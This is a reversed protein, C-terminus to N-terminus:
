KSIKSELVKRLVRALKVKNIQKNMEIDISYDNFEDIICTEMNPKEKNEIYSLLCESIYRNSQFGSNMLIKLLEEECFEYKEQNEYYENKRVNYLAKLFTKCDINKNFLNYYNRVKEIAEKQTIQGFALELIVGKEKLIESIRFLTLKLDEPIYFIKDETSYDEFLDVFTEDLLPFSLDEYKKRTFLEYEKKTKLFSLYSSLFENDKIKRGATIDIYYIGDINYKEEKLYVANIMHGTMGTKSHLRVNITSINLREAIIKFVNSYGECVIKDGLLVSSLDRSLRNNENPGEKIYERDRILDYLHLLIELPSYNYSKIHEAISNIIRETQIIESLPKSENNGDTLYYINEYKGLYKDAEEIQKMDLKRLNTLLIKNDLLEQNSNIFESIEKLEGIINIYDINKFLIKSKSIVDEIICIEPFFIEDQYEKLEILKRRLQLFINKEDNKITMYSYKPNTTIDLVYGDISNRLDYQVQSVNKDLNIVIINKEM